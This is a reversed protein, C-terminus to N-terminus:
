AAQRKLRDDRAGRVFTWRAARKTAEDAGGLRTMEGVVVWLRPSDCFRCTSLEKTFSRALQKGYAKTSVSLSRIKREQRYQRTYATAADLLMRERDASASM